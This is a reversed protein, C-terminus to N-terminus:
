KTPPLDKINDHIYKDYMFQGVEVSADHQSVNDDKMKTLMSLMFDLNTMDMPERSCAMEYLKPFKKKFNGYKSDFYVSKNEVDTSRIAHVIAKIKEVPFSTMKLHISM